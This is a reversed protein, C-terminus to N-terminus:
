DHYLSEGMPKNLVSRSKFGATPLGKVMGSKCGSLAGATRLISKSVTIKITSRLM